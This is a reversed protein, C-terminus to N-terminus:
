PRPLADSGVLAVYAALANAAEGNHKQAEAVRAYLLFAEPDVPFRESAQRLVREAEDLRAAAMLARGYLTLADSSAGPLTAVRELAELAKNLADPRTDLM